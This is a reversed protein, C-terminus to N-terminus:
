SWLHWDLPRRGSAPLATKVLPPSAARVWSGCRVLVNTDTGRIGDSYDNAYNM